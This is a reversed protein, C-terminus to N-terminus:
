GFCSFLIGMFSLIRERVAVASRTRPKEFAEAIISHAVIGLDSLGSAGVEYQTGQLQPSYPM